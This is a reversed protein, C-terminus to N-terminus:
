SLVRVLANMWSGTDTMLNSRRWTYVPLWVNMRASYQCAHTPVTASEMTSGINIVSFKTFLFNWFQSVYRNVAVVGIKLSRIHWTLHQFMRQTIVCRFVSELSLVSDQDWCFSLPLFGVRNLCLIRRGCIGSWVTLINRDKCKIIDKRDFYWNWWFLNYSVSIAVLREESM